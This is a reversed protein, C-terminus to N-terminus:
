SRRMKSRIEDSRVEVSRVKWLWLSVELFTVIMSLGWSSGCDYLPGPFHWLWLSAVRLTVIMSLGLFYWLWLAAWPLAVVMSLCLFYWLWRSTVPLAVFVCLCWSNGCDYLGYSTGYVYFTGPLAVDCLQGLFHWWWLCARPLTVIMFDYLSGLFHWLWLDRGVLPVSIVSPWVSYVSFLSLCFESKWGCSQNLNCLDVGIQGPVHLPHITHDCTYPKTVHSHNPRRWQDTTQDRSFPKTVTTVLSRNPWIPWLHVTRDHTFPKTM